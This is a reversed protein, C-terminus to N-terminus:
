VVYAASPPEDRSSCSAWWSLIRKKIIAPSWFRIDDDRALLVAKADCTVLLLPSNKIVGEVSFSPGSRNNPPFCPIISRGFCCSRCGILVPAYAMSLEYPLPQVDGQRESLLGKGAYVSTTVGYFRIGDISDNEWTAQGIDLVIWVFVSNLRCTASRLRLPRIMLLPLLHLKASAIANAIKDDDDEDAGIRLIKRSHSKWCM